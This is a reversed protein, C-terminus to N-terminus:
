KTIVEKKQPPAKPKSEKSPLGMEQKMTELFLQTGFWNGFPMAAFLKDAERQTFDSGHKKNTAKYAVLEAVNMLSEGANGITNIIPWQSVFRGVAGSDRYTTGTTTRVSPSVGFSDAINQIYAAPALATGRTLAAVTLAKNDLKKKLYEERKKEDNAYKIHGMVNSYAAYSAVGGIASFVAAAVKDKMPRNAYRLFQSHSAMYTFNLFFGALRGIWNSKFATNSNGIVQRTLGRYAADEVLKQVRLWTKPDEKRWAAYKEPNIDGDPLYKRIAENIENLDKETKIGAEALYKKDHPNHFFSTSKGHALDQLDKLCSAKLTNTFSETLRPLQNLTNTIRGIGTLGGSIMDAGRAWAKDGYFRVFENSSLLRGRQHAMMDKMNHVEVLGRLANMDSGKLMSTVYRPIIEFGNTVMAQLMEAMQSVGINNGAAGYTWKALLGIADQAKGRNMAAIEETIPVGRLKSMMSDFARLTDRQEEPSAITTRGDRDKVGHGALNLEKEMKARALLFEEDSNFNTRFGIEGATRNSQNQVIRDLDYDRLWGDFSFSRGDPLAMEFSTDAIFRDNLFDLPNTNHNLVTNGNEDMILLSRNYNSADRDIHGYAWKEAEKDLWSDFAAKDFDAETTKTRSFYRKKNAELKAYAARKGYEKLLEKAQKIDGSFVTDNLFHMM